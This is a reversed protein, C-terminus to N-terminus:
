GSYTGYHEHSYEVQIGLSLIRFFHRGSRWHTVQEVISSSRMEDVTTPLIGEVVPKGGNLNLPVIRSLLIFRKM